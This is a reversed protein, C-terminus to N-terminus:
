RGAGADAPSTSERASRRLPLMVADDNRRNSSDLRSGLCLSDTKVRRQRRAEFTTPAINGLAAHRPRPHHFTDLYDFVALTAERRATFRGGPQQAFLECELIAM